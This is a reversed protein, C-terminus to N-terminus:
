RNLGRASVPWIAEVRDGRVGVYWDYMNVTPDCHGPVLKVKDGLHYPFRGGHMRVILHEDGGRITEADALGWVGPPGSDFSSSKIGADLVGADETPRSMVTSYIFLSQEFDRYPGGDEGLNRGYDMDMFVYSGAQLETYVGGSGELSYTGTGSGTIRPCELGDRELLSKTEAALESAYAIAAQRQSHERTHQAKGAYAQLGAFRLRPSSAVMRALRLAPEGAKVGCRFADEVVNIEVLVDIDVGYAEAAASIDAINQQDDVCVAIRVQGALAALRALKTAGWVQNSILVDSIGGYAMAEAEGVKQCCVGVAGAGIQRLAIAPSKHSKAHPRLRVGFSAAATAMRRINEDLAALDILLAPTDVSELSMGITAPPSDM